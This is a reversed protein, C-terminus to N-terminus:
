RRGSPPSRIALRPLMAWRLMWCSAVTTRITPTAMRRPVTPPHRHERWATTRRIPIPTSPVRVAWRHTAPAWATRTSDVTRTAWMTRCVPSPWMTSSCCRTDPRSNRTALFSYQRSCRVRWASITIRISACRRRSPASRISACSSHSWNTTRSCIQGAGCAATSWM